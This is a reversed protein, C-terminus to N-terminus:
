LLEYIQRMDIEALYQDLQKYNTFASAKVLSDKKQNYWVEVYYTNDFLSFLCIKHPGDIRYVELYIGHDEILGYKEPNSLHNFQSPTFIDTM